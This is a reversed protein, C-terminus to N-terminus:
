HVSVWIRGYGAAVADPPVALPIKKVVKNTSPNVRYVASDGYSAAWVGDAQNAAVGAPRSGVNIIATVTSGSPDTRDLGNPTNAWVGDADVALGQAEIGFNPLLLQATNTSPDIRLLGGPVVPHSVVVWLAGNGFAMVITGDNAITVPAAILAAQARGSTPDVRITGLNGIAWLSGAGAAVAFVPLSGSGIRGLPVTINQPPANYSPDFKLVTRTRPEGVWVGGEGVAFLAAIAGSLNPVGSTRVVRDHTPDIEQVTKDEANLVWVGGTSAALAIPRQGVPIDGVVRNTHPNIVAVSNPVVTIAKASGGTALVVAAAIGGAVLVALAVVVTRLRRRRDDETRVRPFESPLGDILLHSVQEPQDFDKLAHHGLRRLRVGEPLTDAVVQATASSLLVQGGRAAAGIRAARHVSLGVYRGDEGIEPEGTHIGMRVRLVVEAPWAHEYLARQADAAAAVADRARRFSFFFSDGQTDVEEGDHEAAAHRLVADHESRVQKYRDGLERLLRTSGEIDTFLFTVTGLPLDPVRNPFAVVSAVLM